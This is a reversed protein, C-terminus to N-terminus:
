VATGAQTVVPDDTPGQRVDHGIKTAPVLIQGDEDVVMYETAMYDFESWLEWWLLIRPHEGEFHFTKLRSVSQNRDQYNTLQVIGKNQQSSWGGGFTYFGGDETPGDSLVDTSSLDRPIKVFAVNRAVNM